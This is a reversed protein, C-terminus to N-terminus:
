ENQAGSSQKRCVVIGLTVSTQETFKGHETHRAVYDSVIADIDPCTERFHGYQGVLRTVAAEPAEEAVWDCPIYDVTPDLEMALLLNLPYIIHNSGNHGAPSGTILEALSKERTGHGAGGGAIGIYILVDRTLALMRMFSEPNYLCPNMSGFVLGYSDDPLACELFDEALISIGAVGESACKELLVRNMEESNDLADVIGGHLAFPIAYSGTGSGVDLIRKASSWFDLQVLIDLVRQVRLVSNGMGLDYTRASLNWCLKEDPYVSKFRSGDAASQWESIWFEKSYIKPM